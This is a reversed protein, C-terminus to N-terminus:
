LAKVKKPVVNWLVEIESILLRGPGVFGCKWDTEQGSETQGIGKKSATVLPM